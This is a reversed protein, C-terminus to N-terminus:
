RRNPTGDLAASADRGVRATRAAGRANITEKLESWQDLVDSEDVQAPTCTRTTLKSYMQSPLFLRLNPPYTQFLELKALLNPWCRPSVSFRSPGVTVVM